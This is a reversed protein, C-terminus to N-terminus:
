KDVDCIFDFRGLLAVLCYVLAVFFVSLTILSTPYNGFSLYFDCQILSWGIEPVVGALYPSNASLADFIGYFLPACISVLYSRTLLYGGIAILSCVSFFPIMLIGPCLLQFAAFLFFNEGGVVICYAIGTVYLIVSIFVASLFVAGAMWLAFEMRSNFRSLVAGRRVAELPALLVILSAPIFFFIAANYDLASLCVELDNMIGYYEPERTGTVYQAMRGLVIIAAFLLLRKKTPMFVLARMM